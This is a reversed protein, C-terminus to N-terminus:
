AVSRDAPAPHPVTRPTVALKNEDLDILAVALADNPFHSPAPPIQPASVREDWREQASKVQLM